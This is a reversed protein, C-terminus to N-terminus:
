RFLTAHRIYKRLTEERTHGRQRTIDHAAVGAAAASPVFGATVQM